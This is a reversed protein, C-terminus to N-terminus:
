YGALPVAALGTCGGGDVGVGILRAGVTTSLIVAPSTAIVKFRSSVGHVTLENRDNPV